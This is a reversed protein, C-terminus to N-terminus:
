HVFLISYLMFLYIFDLLLNTTTKNDIDIFLEINVELELSIIQKM